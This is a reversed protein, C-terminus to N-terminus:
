HPVARHINEPM